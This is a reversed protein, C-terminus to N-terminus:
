CYSSITHGFVPGRCQVLREGKTNSMIWGFSGWDKPASGDSAAYCRGRCLAEWVRTKPQIFHLEGLLDKEWMDWTNKQDLVHLPPTTEPPLEQATSRSSVIWTHQTPKANIPVADTPLTKCFDTPDIDFNYHLRQHVLFGVATQM